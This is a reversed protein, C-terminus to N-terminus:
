CSKKPYKYCKKREKKLNISQLHIPLHMPSKPKHYPLSKRERHKKQNMSNCWYKRIIEPLLKKRGKVSEELPLPPEGSLHSPILRVNKTWMDGYPLIQSLCLSITEATGTIEERDSIPSLGRDGMIAVRTGPYTHRRWVWVKGTHSCWPQPTPLFTLFSTKAKSSCHM